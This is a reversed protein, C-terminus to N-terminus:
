RDHCSFCLEEVPLRLHYTKQHHNDMAAVHMNHCTIACTILGSGDLPLAKRNMEPKKGVGHGFEIGHCQLCVGNTGNRMIRKENLPLHDAVLESEATLHCSSCSGKSGHPSVRELALVGTAATIQWHFSVVIVTVLLRMRGATARNNM